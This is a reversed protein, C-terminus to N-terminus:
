TLEVGFAYINCRTLGSGSFMLKDGEELVVGGKIFETTQVSGVPKVVGIIAASDRTGGSPVHYLFGTGTPDVAAMTVLGLMYTTDVPVVAGPALLVDHENDDTVSVYGLLKLTAAM